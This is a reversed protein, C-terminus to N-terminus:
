DMYKIVVDDVTVHFAGGNLAYLTFRFDTIPTGKAPAAARRVEDVYFGLENSDWAIRLHVPIGEKIHRVDPHRYEDYNGIYNGSCTLQQCIGMEINAQGGHTISIYHNAGDSMFVRLAVGGEGRTEFSVMTMTWAIERISRTSATVSLSSSEGDEIYQQTMLVNLVGNQVFTIEANSPPQWITLDLQETDFTDTVIDISSPSPTFTIMPTSTPLVLSTVTETNDVSRTKTVGLGPTITKSPPIPTVIPTSLNNRDSTFFIILGWVIPVIAILGAIAGIGQWIPDRLLEMLLKKRESTQPDSSRSKINKQQVIFQELTQEPILWINGSKESGALIGKRALEAIDQPSYQLGAANLREVAKQTTLM